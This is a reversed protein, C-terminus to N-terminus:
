NSEGRSANLRLIRMGADCVVTNGHQEVLCYDYAVSEYPTRKAEKASWAWAGWVTGVLVCGCLLGTVFRYRDNEFYRKASPIAEEIRMKAGDIFGHHENPLYRGRILVRYWPRVVWFLSMGTIDILWLRPFFVSLILLPTSGHNELVTRPSKEVSHIAFELSRLERKLSKQGRHKEALGLRARGYLEQRSALTNNPLQSVASFVLPYYNTNHNCFQINM